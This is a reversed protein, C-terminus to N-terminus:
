RDTPQKMRPPAGYISILAMFETHLHESVEEESLVLYGTSMMMAIGYSYFSMERHIKEAVERSYGYRGEMVDLIQPLNVDDVAKGGKSDYLYLYRFLEKEEVAFRVFAIGYARYNDYGKGELCEKVIQRHYDAALIRLESKLEELNEFVYYVPQTSCGLEKAITRANLAEYGEKRLISLSTDLIMEKTVKRKAPM